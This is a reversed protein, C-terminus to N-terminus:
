YLNSQVMNEQAPELLKTVFMHYSKVQSPRQELTQVHTNDDGGIM